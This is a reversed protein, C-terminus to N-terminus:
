GDRVPSPAGPAGPGALGARRLPYGYRLLLPFAIATVTRADARRMQRTWEDDLRIRVSGGGLRVPNGSVSHGPALHIAGDQFLGPVDGARPHGFAGLTAALTEAPRQVFDEYRVRLYGHARGRLGEAAANQYTWRWASLAPRKRAMFADARGADPRPKTRMWSYAVARADRVLHLVHLRVNPLLRLLYAYSAEKSSDILWGADATRAAAEYVGALRDVHTALARELDAPRRPLLLYPITRTRDLRRAEAAVQRAAEAGLHGLSRGLVTQWYPCRDFPQGCGCLQNEILSRQWVHRMEGLSATGELQAAVRELITSGSRGYGAIYLVDIARQSM